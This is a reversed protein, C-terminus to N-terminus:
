GGGVMQAIELRDGERLVTSGFRDRRLAAGNHEVVVREPVLGLTYL